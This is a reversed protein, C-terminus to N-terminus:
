AFNALDRCASYTGSKKVPRLWVQEVEVHQLTSFHTDGNNDIATRGRLYICIGDQRERERRGGGLLCGCQSKLGEKM